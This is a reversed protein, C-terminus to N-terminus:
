PQATGGEAEIQVEAHHEAGAMAMTIPLARGATAFSAWREGDRLLLEFKLLGGYVVGQSDANLVRFVCEAHASRGHRDPALSFMQEGVQIRYTQRFVTSADPVTITGEIRLERPRGKEGELRARSLEFSQETGRLGFFADGRNRSVGAMNKAHIVMRAYMGEAMHEAVHCHFLWQGPNDAVMDAIKMSGPLLDTVDTRRRGDEIVRQGHWHATHLDTESGLGFTYWRVREGENMELGPLNGFIYGNIAFRSGQEMLAQVEGFSKAPAGASGLYEAAEAAEESLGSEDFILFLAAMERDVDNPSGDPRARKPDTVVIMGVLGLQIEGDGSAHSHYLWGKSSPETPLPGSQEDLQWVYTFKAGPGVAAGLGPNPLDYSGENDKDYRVGHPHMSLPRDTGNYFTVVLTEGVTGRLVPGMIGLRPDPIVQRSFTADTYQRYLFKVATHQAQVQPPLQKGCIPDRELPAYDWVVPEAKVYYHRATAAAPAKGFLKGGLDGTATTVTPTVYLPVPTPEVPGTPDPTGATLQGRWPLLLAAVLILM